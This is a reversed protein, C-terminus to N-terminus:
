VVTFQLKLQAGAPPPVSKNICVLRVQLNIININKLLQFNICSVNKLINQVQIKPQLQKHLQRVTIFLESFHCKFSDLSASHRICSVMILQLCVLSTGTMHKTNHIYIMGEIFRRSFGLAPHQKEPVYVQGVNPLEPLGTNFTMNITLM